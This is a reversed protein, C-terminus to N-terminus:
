QFAEVATTAAIRCRLFSAARYRLRTRGTWQERSYGAPEAHCLLHGCALKRSVETYRGKAAFWRHCDLERALGSRCTM